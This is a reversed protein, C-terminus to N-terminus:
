REQRELERAMEAFYAADPGRPGFGNPSARGTAPAATRRFEPVKLMWNRWAARWDKMPKGGAQYHLRFKETEHAVVARDLGKGDAWAYDADNVAFDDPIASARKARPTPADAGNDRERENTRDPGTPKTLNPVTPGNCQTVPANTVANTVRSMPTVRDHSVSESQVRERHRRQRERNAERGSERMAILRGAYEDWDHIALDGDDEDLFGVDVLVAVFADPDGDWEAGLAIDLRDFRSLDGDQAYDTAWWWLFQLHGVVAPRSIGLLRAMKRTKPHAGLSQHSEIWTM